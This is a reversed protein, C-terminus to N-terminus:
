LDHAIASASDDREGPTQAAKDADVAAQTAADAEKKAAADAAAAQFYHLLWGGLASLLSMVISSILGTLFTM